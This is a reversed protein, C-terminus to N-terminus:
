CGDVADADVLFGHELLGVDGFEEVLRAGFVFATRVRDLRSTEYPDEVTEGAVVASSDFRELSSDRGDSDM